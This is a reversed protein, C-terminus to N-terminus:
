SERVCSACTPNVNGLGSRSKIPGSGTVASPRAALGALTVPVAGVVVRSCLARRTSYTQGTVRVLRYAWPLLQSHRCCRTHVQCPSPPPLRPSSQSLFVPFLAQSRSNWACQLRRVSGAQCNRTETSAAEPTDKQTGPAVPCVAPVSGPPPHHVNVSYPGRPPECLPQLRPPM